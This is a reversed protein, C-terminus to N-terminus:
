LILKRVNEMYNRSVILEVNNELVLFMKTIDRYVERIYNLNVIYSRHIRVFLRPDLKKEIVGIGQASLYANGQTNVQTYDKDAKLYVIDTVPIGRLRNGYNLLLREPYNQQTTYSEIFNHIGAAPTNNRIKNLAQEFRSRTYPKLLYDLANLEFAKLAYKDFATTFIIDPIFDIEQLVEIGNVGPMQIDLFVIHPETANIAAIAEIGNCCEAAISFDGHQQLYERILLRSAEEDDVIIVTRKSM